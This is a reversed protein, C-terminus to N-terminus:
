VVWLLAIIKILPCYITSKHLVLDRYLSIICVVRLEYALNYKIKNM